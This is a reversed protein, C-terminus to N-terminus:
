SMNALKRQCMVNDSCSLFKFIGMELVVSYTLVNMVVSIMVTVFVKLVVLKDLM